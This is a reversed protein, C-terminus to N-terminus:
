VKTDSIRKRAIAAHDKDIECGWWSRKLKKCAVLTTAGGTFPDVVLGKLPSLKEIYYMAEVLSQQWDHSDKEQKSVVLDDVFTQMDGRTGKVFWLLPKWHVIIGKLKMRAKQGTHLVALPWWFRLHPCMLNLVEPVQYQGLYCVLSGGEHLVRNAMEALHGYLPLSKRDYPPDTFILDVSDDKLAKCATRFDGVTVGQMGKTSKKAAESRKKRAAEKKQKGLDKHVGDIKGTKDMKATLDASGSDIVEEAKEFSRRSMGVSAAAQENTERQRTEPLGEPLKGSPKKKRGRGGAKGDASKGAKQAADATPKYAKAVAKASDVKETINLEKRCTNEELQARLKKAADDLTKAVHAPVTSWGLKKAATLRRYGGVLINGPALVIPQLLGLDTISTVLADIDGLDKRFRKTIKIDAIAVNV